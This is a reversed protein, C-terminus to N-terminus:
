ERELSKLRDVVQETSRRQEDSNTRQRAIAIDRESFPHAFFGLRKGNADVFEVSENTETIM